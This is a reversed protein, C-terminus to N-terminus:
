RIYNPALETVFSNYLVTNYIKILEDKQTYMEQNNLRITKVSRYRRKTFELLTRISKLNLNKIELEKSIDKIKCLLNNVEDLYMKKEAYIRLLLSGAEHYINTSQMFLPNTPFFDRDYYYKTHFSWRNTSHNKLYQNITGNSRVCAALDDIFINPSPNSVLGTLDEPLNPISSGLFPNIEFNNTDIEGWFGSTALMEVNGIKICLEFYENSYRTKRRLYSVPTNQYAIKSLDACDDITPNKHIFIDLSTILFWYNDSLRTLSNVFMKGYKTAIVEAEKATISWERSMAKVSYIDNKIPQYCELDCLKGVYLPFVNYATRSPKKRSFTLKLINM